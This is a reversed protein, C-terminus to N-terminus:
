HAGNSGNKPGHGLLRNLKLETDRHLARIEKMEARSEKMEARTEKQMRVIERMLLFGEKILAESRDLRKDSRANRKETSAIFSKLTADLKASEQLLFEVAKELDVEESALM